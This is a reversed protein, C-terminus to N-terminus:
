EESSSSSVRDGLAALLDAVTPSTVFLGTAAAYMCLVGLAVYHPKTAAPLASLLGTLVLAIGFVAFALWEQIGSHPMCATM